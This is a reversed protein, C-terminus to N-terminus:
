QRKLAGNLFELIDRHVEDHATGQLLEHQAGPYIILTLNEINDGGYARYLSMALRGNLTISDRGGSIILLPMEPCASYNIQMLNKFLSYYFGYTFCKGQLPSFFDIFRACANNGWISKGLWATTLGSWLFAHSYRGTSAMCVGAACLNTREMLSQTIFSGYGYGFLFVPANFEAKLRHLIALEDAVIASYIDDSTNHPRHSSVFVVFGNRNLFRAFRNYQAIDDDTGSIIQVVGRVSQVRNWLICKLRTGDPTIFCENKM